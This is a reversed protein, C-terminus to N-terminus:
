FYSRRRRTGSTEAFTGCRRMSTGTPCRWISRATWIWMSFRAVSDWAHNTVGHGVGAATSVDDYVGAQVSRYLGIMENDFNTIAIGPRGSNDFDGTDVGMGARAKGESSFALGAEVAVDKFKGNRLNKYLKNPQTDNAVLLDPWGDADYDFM